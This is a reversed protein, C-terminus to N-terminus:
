ASGSVVTEPLRAVRAAFLGVIEAMSTKGDVAPRADGRKAFYLGLLVRGRRLYVAISTTKTGAATTVFSYALRQVSRTQPWAKDPRPNFRTEATGEQVPSRVPAHPCAAAVKRLEAFASSTAKANRYTVAETSLLLRGASDLEAVQLRAVRLKETAFTGNCLDLTPETTRNGNPILLVIRTAGADAQQVVLQSLARADAVSPATDPVTTPTPAANATSGKSKTHSEIAYGIGGAVLVLVVLGVVVATIRGGRPSRYSLVTPPVTSPVTPAATGAVIAPSSSWGRPEGYAAAPGSRHTDGTWAEGNWFRYQGATWPDAYWGPPWRAVDIPELGPLDDTMPGM